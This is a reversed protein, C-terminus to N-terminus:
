CKEFGVLLGGKEAYYSCLGRCGHIKVCVQSLEALIMDRLTHAASLNECHAIWEELKEILLLEVYENEVDEDTDELVVYECFRCRRKCIPVHIYLSLEEAKQWEEEVFARIESEDKLKYQMFSRPTLPYATNAYHHYLLGTEYVRSCNM